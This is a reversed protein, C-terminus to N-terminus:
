AARTGRCADDCTHAATRRSRCAFSRERSSTTLLFDHSLHQIADDQDHCANRGPQKGGCLDAKGAMRVAPTTVAALLVWAARAMAVLAALAATAVVTALVASRPHATRVTTKVRVVVGDLFSIKESALALAPM